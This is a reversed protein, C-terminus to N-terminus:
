GALRPWLLALAPSGRRGTGWGKMRQESESQALLPHTERQELHRAQQPDRMMPTPLSRQPWSQLSSIGTIHAIVYPRRQEPCNERSSHKM